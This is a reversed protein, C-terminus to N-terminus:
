LFRYVEDFRNGQCLYAFEKVLEPDFQKGSESLIIRLVDEAPMGKRYARGSVMADYVDAISLIRALLPIAEGALGDPYGSGDYREHHHRIITKERDWLGLQGIISEGIAPHEKIKEFEAASLPGPKLLIEDRIGIKGIDHLRGSFDLVDIEAKSCGHARAIIKAAETVRNSHQKTYADRAEVARVFASLTSFLNEYINEYLALNEVMYAAQQVMFALYYLDKETFFDDSGNISAALVGFVSKRIKLPVGIFSHINEPIERHAQNRSIILPTEDTAIERIVENLVSFSGSGYESTAESVAEAPQKAGGIAANLPARSSRAIEVPTEITDGIIYFAVNEAPTIHIAMEVMHDFVEIGSRSAVLEGMIKNLTSLESVKYSLERNLQEIRRKSELEKNLLLNKIFLERERLVRQLCLTMQNLNVPKILFDVVGNKLTRITNDLSPYGTMVVVPITNDKKRLHEALELGDMEPMNIDTFCCDVVDSELAAIAELGNRATLVRYGMDQFHESAIELISEEDDM